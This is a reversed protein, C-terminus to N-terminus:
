RVLFSTKYTGDYSLVDLWVRQATHNGAAAAEDVDPRPFGARVLIIDTDEYGIESSYAGDGYANSPSPSRSPSAGFSLSASASPQTPSASYTASASRTNSPTVSPTSSASPAPSPLSTYAPLYHKTLDVPAPVIGLIVEGFYPDAAATVAFAGTLTDYRYILARSAAYIMLRPAGGEPPATTRGGLTFFRQNVNLVVSARLSWTGNRPDVVISGGTRRFGVLQGATTSDPGADTYWVEDGAQNFIFHTPYRGTTPMGAHPAQMGPLLTFNVPVDPPLDEETPLGGNGFFGIGGPWPSTSAVAAFLTGFAIDLHVIAPPIDVNPMLDLELTGEAGFPPNVMMTYMLHGDLPDIWWFYYPWHSAAPSNRPIQTLDSVVYNGAAKLYSMSSFSVPPPTSTFAPTDRAHMVMVDGASSRTFLPRESGPLFESRFYSVAYTGFSSFPLRTGNGLAQTGDPNLVRMEIPRSQQGSPDMFDLLTSMKGVLIDGETWFNRQLTSPRSIDPTASPTTTATPTAGAVLPGTALGVFDLTNGDSYTFSGWESTPLDNLNPWMRAVHFSTALFLIPASAGPPTFVTMGRIIRPDLPVALSGLLRWQLASGGPVARAYFFIQKGLSRRADAVVLVDDTYLCLATIRKHGTINTMVATGSGATRANAPTVTRVDVATSFMITSRSDLVAATVNVGSALRSTVAVSSTSTTNHFRIPSDRMPVAWGQLTGLPLFASIATTALRQFQVQKQANINFTTVTTFSAPDSLPVLTGVALNSCVVVIGDKSTTLSILSSPAELPLTCEGVFGSASRGNPLLISAGTAALRLTASMGIVYVPGTVGTEGDNVDFATRARALITLDDFEFDRQQSKVGPLSCLLAVLCLLWAAM